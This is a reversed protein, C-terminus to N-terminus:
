SPSSYSRCGSLDPSDIIIGAALEVGYHGNRMYYRQGDRWVEGGQITAELGHQRAALYVMAAVTGCLGAGSRAAKARDRGCRELYLKIADELVPRLHLCTADVNIKIMGPSLTM